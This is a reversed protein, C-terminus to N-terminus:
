AVTARLKKRARRERILIIVNLLYVVGAWGSASGGFIWVILMSVLPVGTILAYKRVERLTLEKERKNLQLEQAKKHARWYWLFFILYILFFGIGFRVMLDAWQETNLNAHQMENAKLAMAASHVGFWQMVKLWVVTGLINFLYKLPYVYFLLIFLFIFNLTRNFNDELGYKTFYKYHGNWIALLVMSCFIFGLFGYMSVQLELYTTPVSVSIVLLTISFGFVTDTLAELRSAELGRFRFGEPSVEKGAKFQDRFM